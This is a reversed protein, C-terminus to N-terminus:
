KRAAQRAAWWFAEREVRTLAKYESPQLDASVCLAAMQRASM